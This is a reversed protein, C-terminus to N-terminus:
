NHSNVYDNLWQIVRKIDEHQYETFYKKVEKLWNEILSIVNNINHFNNLTLFKSYELSFMMIGLSQISPQIDSLTINQVIKISFTTVTQNLYNIFINEQTPKLRKNLDFLFINIFDYIGMIDIDCNVIKMITYILENIEEYSMENKNDWNELCKLEFNRTNFTQNVLYFCCLILLILKTTSFNNDYKSLLLQSCSIPYDGKSYNILFSDFLSVTKFYIKESTNYPKLAELLYKFAYKRLEENIGFKLLIEENIQVLNDKIKEQNLLDNFLGPSYTDFDKYLSKLYYNLMNKDPSPKPNESKHINSKKQTELNRAETQLNPKTQQSKKSIIDPKHTKYSKKNSSKKQKQTRKKSM